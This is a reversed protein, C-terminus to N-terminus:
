PCGSAPRRCPPHTLMDSPAAIAPRLLPGPLSALAATAGMRKLQDRRRLQENTMITKATAEDDM